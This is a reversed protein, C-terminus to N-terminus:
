YGQVKAKVIAERLYRNLMPFEERETPGVDIEKGDQSLLFSYIQGESDFGRYLKAGGMLTCILTGDFANLVRNGPLERYQLYCLAADIYENFMKQEHDMISCCIVKLDKTIYSIEDAGVTIHMLEAGNAFTLLSQRFEPIGNTNNM